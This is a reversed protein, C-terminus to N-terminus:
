SGLGSASVLQGAIQEAVFTVSFTQAYDSQKRSSQSQAGIRTYPVQAVDRQAKRFANMRRSLVHTVKTVSTQRSQLWVAANSFIAARL